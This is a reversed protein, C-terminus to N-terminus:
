FSIKKGEKKADCDFIIMPSSEKKYLDTEIDVPNSDSVPQAESDLDTVPQKVIMETFEAGQLDSDVNSEPSVM